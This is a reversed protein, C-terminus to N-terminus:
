QDGVLRDIERKLALAATRDTPDALVPVGILRRTAARLIAVLKPGKAKRQADRLPLSPALESISRGMTKSLEVLANTKALYAAATSKAIGLEVIAWDRFTRHGMLIWGRIHVMEALSEWLQDASQRARLTIAQAMEPTAQVVLDPQVREISM